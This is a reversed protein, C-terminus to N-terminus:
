AYLKALRFLFFSISVQWVKALKIFRKRVKLLLTRCNIVLTCIKDMEVTGMVALILYM